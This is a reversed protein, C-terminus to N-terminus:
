KAEVVVPAPVHVTGKQNVAVTVPQGHGGYRTLVAPKAWDLDWGDEIAIVTYSGPTVNYVTFSGDLDSQDRRFRDSNSEPDQPILVVMAGPFAKGDRKAFGDITVSGATLTASISLQSGAPVDVTRGSAAGGEWSIRTVSYAETPSGAVVDYKGAIVDPFSAEGRADVQSAIVKGKDNRLGMQIQPPLTAAGPVEVKVKVTSTSNGATGGLEQSNTLSAATPEKLRGNSDPIRVLYRGPAIGTLEYVGPSVMEVNPTEVDEVGDFVVRQFEPISQPYAGPEASEGGQFTLRLAPTPRLHIDAELHDGGRLPIPAAEEPETADGYYTVPYAVDLAPDVQIPANAADRASPPHMAYWPMAKASVFYTGANLPTIEYKGQDDTMAGLHRSIKSIGSSRDERYVMVQAQRVPEGFEDLVKGALVANPALRLTLNEADVGAVGTVIATWFEDHQNYGTNIFGRKSGQLTFKGAPVHFEFRGTESSLAARTKQRTKTDAITVLARALPHGSSANVVTGAIRWPGSPIPEPDGANAQARLNSVSCFLGGIILSLFLTRHRFRLMM